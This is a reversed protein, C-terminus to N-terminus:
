RVKGGTLYLHSKPLGNTVAKSQLDASGAEHFEQLAGNFLLDISGCRGSRNKDVTLKVPAEGGIPVESAKKDLSIVTEAGYEFKRSGAAASMGGEKMAGRNREAIGIIPMKVDLALTRLTKLAETLRDYETSGTAPASDAWSHVSDVVMLVHGRGDQERAVLACDKLEDPTVYCDTGDVLYLHGVKEITKVALREFMEPPLDPDGNVLKGLFTRTHRAILRNFLRLLSMEASVIVSPVGSDAAFQLGAASKGIGPEATVVHLGPELAGGLMEDLAPLSTVPGRAVGSVKADYRSEYDDKLDSLLSRLSRLSVRSAKPAKEPSTTHTDTAM